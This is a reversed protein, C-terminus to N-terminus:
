AISRWALDPYETTHKMSAIQLIFLSYRAVVFEGGRKRSSM